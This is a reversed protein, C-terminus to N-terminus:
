KTMCFVSFLTLFNIILEARDAVKNGKRGRERGKTKLITTSLISILAEYVDPM